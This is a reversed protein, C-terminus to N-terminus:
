DLKLMTSAATFAVKSMPSPTRDSHTCVASSLRERVYIGNTLYVSNIHQVGSSLRIADNVLGTDGM